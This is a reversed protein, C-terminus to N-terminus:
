TRSSVNGDPDISCVITKENTAADTVIRVVTGYKEVGDRDMQGKPTGVVVFLRGVLTDDAKADSDVGDSDSAAAEALTELANTADDQDSQLKEQRQVCRLSRGVESINYRRWPGEPLIFADPTRRDIAPAHVSAIRMAEEMSLQKGITTGESNVRRVMTTKDRGTATIMQVFIGCKDLGYASLARKPTGLVIFYRGFLPEDTM